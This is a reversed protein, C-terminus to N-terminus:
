ATVEICLAVESLFAPIREDRYFPDVVSGRLSDALEPNIEDLKNFLAQGKRLGNQYSPGMALKCLVLFESQCIKLNM